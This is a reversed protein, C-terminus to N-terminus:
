TETLNLLLMESRLNYYKREKKGWVPITICALSVSRRAAGVAVVAVHTHQPPIVVADKKAAAHAETVVAVEQAAQQKHPRPEQVGGQHICLDENDYQLLTHCHM